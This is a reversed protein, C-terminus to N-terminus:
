TRTDVPLHPSGRDVFREWLASLGVILAVLALIGAGVLRQRMAASEPNDFDDLRHAARDADEGALSLALVRTKSLNGWNTDPDFWLAIRTGAQPQKAPIPPHLGPRYVRYNRGDGQLTIGTSEYDNGRFADAAEVVVGTTPIPHVPHAAILLIAGWGALVALGILPLCAVALAVLGFLGSCGSAFRGSM